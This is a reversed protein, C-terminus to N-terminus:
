STLTLDDEPIAVDYTSTVTAVVSTTHSEDISPGRVVFQYPYMRKALEPNDVHNASYDPPIKSELYNTLFGQWEDQATEDYVTSSLRGGIHTDLSQARFIEEEESPEPKTVSSLSDTEDVLGSGNHRSIAIYIETSAEGTDISWIDKIAKVKGSCVLYPTDVKATHSLDISPNYATKFSVTNLRHARIIDGKAAALVVEQALNFSERTVVAGTSTDSDADIYLDGSGLSSMGTPVSSDYPVISNPWDSNDADNAISYEETTAVVGIADISDPARVLLEYNEEVDQLWRAAARWSAGKCLSSADVAADYAFGENTTVEGTVTNTTTPEGNVWGSVTTMNWVVWGCGIAGASCGGPPVCDYAGAPWIEEYKIPTIAVWTGSTAASEVMSRQCLQYPNWYFTCLDHWNSWRFNIARHRKRQFSFSMQIRAENTMESRQAYELSLTEHFRADDDFTFHPVIASRIDNPNSRNAILNSVRLNGNEDTWVCKETTSLVEQAYTWGSKDDEDSWVQDSWIGGILENIKDRDMANFKAPLQTDATFYIAKTDPDWKVDAVKGKFRRRTFSLSGLTTYLSWWLEVPKGVYVLPDIAGSPPSIVFNAISSADEEIEITIEKVLYASVNTLSDGLYCVPQWIASTLTYSSSINYLKFVISESVSSGSGYINFSVSLTYAAITIDFTISPSVSEGSFLNFSVGITSTTEGPSLSFGVKILLDTTNNYAYNVTVDNNIFHLSNQSSDLGPISSDYYKLHWSKGLYPGSYWSTILDSPAEIGDLYLTNRLKGTFLNGSYATKTSGGVVWVKQTDYFSYNEELYQPTTDLSSRTGDIIIKVRDEATTRTSNVSILLKVFQDTPIEDFSALALVPDGNVDDCEVFVRVETSVKNLYVRFEDFNATDNDASLTFLLDNDLITTSDIYLETYFSFIYKSNNTAFSSTSTIEVNGYNINDLEYYDIADNGNVSSDEGEHGPSPNSYELKFGGTGWPGSYEFVSSPSVIYGDVFIAATASGEYYDYYSVQEHSCYAGIWANQPAGGAEVDWAKQNQTPWNIMGEEQDPTLELGDWYMKIRDTETAQTSDYQIVARYTQDGVLELGDVYNPGDTWNYWYVYGDTNDIELDIGWFGNYYWLGIVLWGDPFGSLGDRECIAFLLLPYHADVFYTGPAFELAITFKTPSNGLLSSDDEVMRILVEPADNGYYNPSDFVVKTAGLTTVGPSSRYLYTDSGTFIAEPPTFDTNLGAVVGGSGTCLVLAKAFHCTAGGVSTAGGSALYHKPSIWAEGSSVIGGSAEIEVPSKYTHAVGSATAGGTANWYGVINPLPM